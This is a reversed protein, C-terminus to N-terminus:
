PRRRWVYMCLGKQAALTIFLHQIPLEVCSSWTSVMAYLLPAAFKSGNFCQRSRRVGSRKVVYNWHPRLIIADKPLTVPDIASGFMKKDHFQNLQKHEGKKWENWTLLKKLKRRTFHGIIAEEPTISDSQLTNIAIQIM